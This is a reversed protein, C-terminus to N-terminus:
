LIITGQPVTNKKKGGSEGESAGIKFGTNEDDGKKVWEPHRKLVEGLANKLGEADLNGAKQAERMALYTADEAVAPKVGSGIAEIQIKLLLNEQLLSNEIAKEQTQEPKQTEDPKTQPKEGNIKKRERALRKEILADLEEQTKPLNEGTAENDRASQIDANEQPEAQLKTEKEEKSM